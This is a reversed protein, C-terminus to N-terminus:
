RAGVLADPWRAPDPVFAVVLADDRFSAGTATCRQLLSPLAIRRRHSGVTIVLDDGSRTLQVQGRDALPLPVTLRYDGQGGTVQLGIRADDPGPLPDRDGYVEGALATLAAVGVPEAARLQAHLVPLGAFSEAVATLGRRQGERLRAAWTGDAEAPLLRNVVVAGVRYGHLSLATYARRAEALVVHEATTVVTVGSGPATLLARASTLRTLLDSLADRVEGDPGTTLGGRGGLGAALARLLRQPAGFLRDAYFSLTEPLALLRLTEGTPACDVVIVDYAGSAARQQLELLAVIEDAGPLVVLEEATVEAVGRAALVGVLYQRIQSWGAEFRGQVDVEAASLRPALVPDVVSPEGSLPTGLVDSLSHAPDTSLVLTRHGSAAAAVATAAALTTKGVGGKGTFLLTRPGDVAAATTGSM